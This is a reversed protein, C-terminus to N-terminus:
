PRSEVDSAFSSFPGDEAALLLAALQAVDSLTRQQEANAASGDGWLDLWGIARSGLALGVRAGQEPLTSTRPADDAAASESPFLTEPRLVASPVSRLADGPASSAVVRDARDRVVAAALPLAERSARVLRALPQEASASARSDRLIAHLLDRHRCAVKMAAVREGSPSALSAAILGCVCLGGFAMVDHKDDIALRLYPQTLFFDLSLASCVATAVAASRGGLGAVAITLAMYLFAFNSATTFGRFPTLAIGLAIAALPGVSSYFLAETKEDMDERGAVAAAGGQPTDDSASM